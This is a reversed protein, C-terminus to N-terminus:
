DTTPLRCRRQAPAAAGRGLTSSGRREGQITEPCNGDLRPEDSGSLTTRMGAALRRWQPGAVNTSTRAVRVAAGAGSELAGGATGAAIGPGKCNLSLSGLLVTPVASMM